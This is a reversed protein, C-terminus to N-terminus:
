EHALLAKELMELAIQLYEQAAAPTIGLQSAIVEPSSGRKWAAELAEKSSSPMAALARKIRDPRWSQGASLSLEDAGPLPQWEMRERAEPDCAALARIRTVTALWAPLECNQVRFTRPQRWIDLFTERVVNEAPGTSDLIRLAIAYCLHAYRDYIEAMALRNGTSALELLATDDLSKLQATNEYLVANRSNARLPETNLKIQPDAM